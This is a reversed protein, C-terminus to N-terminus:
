NAKHCELSTPSKLFDNESGSLSLGGSRLSRLSRLHPYNVEHITLYMEQCEAELLRIRSQATDKEENMMPSDLSKKLKNIRDRLLDLQKEYSQVLDQM